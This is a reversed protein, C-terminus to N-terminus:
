RPTWTPRTWRNLMSGLSGPRTCTSTSISEDVGIDSLVRALQLQLAHGSQQVDIQLLDPAQWQGREHRSDLIRDNAGGARTEIHEQSAQGVDQRGRTFDDVTSGACETVLVDDGDCMRQGVDVLGTFAQRLGQALDAREHAFQRLAVMSRAAEGLTRPLDDVLRPGLNHARQLAHVHDGVVEGFCGVLDLFSMPSLRWSKRDNV